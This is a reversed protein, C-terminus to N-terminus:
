LAAVLAEDGSLDILQVDAGGHAPVASVRVWAWRSYLRELAYVADPVPERTRIAVIAPHDDPPVLTGDPLRLILKADSALLDEEPAGLLGVGAADVRILRGYSDVTVIAPPVARRPQGEDAM